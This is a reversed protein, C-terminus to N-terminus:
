STSRRRPARSGAASGGCTPRTAPCGTTSACGSPMRRRRPPPVPPQRRLGRVQRLREGERLAVGRRKQQCPHRHVRVRARDDLDITRAARWLQRWRRSLVCTQVVQRSGLRSLVSHLLSDPLQSLRDGGGAADHTGGYNEMRVPRESRPPEGERGDRILIRAYGPSPTRAQWNGGFPPPRM